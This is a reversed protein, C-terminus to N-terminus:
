VAKIEHRPSVTVALDISNEESFIQVLTKWVNCAMTYDVCVPSKTNAGTDATRLTGADLAAKETAAM